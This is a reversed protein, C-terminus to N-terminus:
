LSRTDIMEGSESGEWTQSVSLLWVFNDRLMRVTSHPAENDHNLKLTKSSRTVTEKLKKAVIRVDLEKVGWM